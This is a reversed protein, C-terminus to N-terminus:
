GRPGFLATGIRIQTAGEEVAVEYDHSMGMSLVPLPLGSLSRLAEALERLKAFWPRTASPSAPPPMTMLGLCRLKPMQQLSTLLEGLGAPDAGSKSEEEGLRVQILVPVPPREPEVRAAIARALRASDVTDITDFLGLAQGVKNRQLHGIMRWTVPGALAERMAAAEQVYNHGLESVGLAVVQAVEHASRSKAAAVITVEGPHRGARRGAAAVRERIEALREPISM